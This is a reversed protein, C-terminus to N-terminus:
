IKLALLSLNCLLLLNHLLRNLWHCIGINEKTYALEM